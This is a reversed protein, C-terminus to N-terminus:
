APQEARAAENAGVLRLKRQANRVEDVIQEADKVSRMGLGCAPTLLMGALVAEFPISRPTTARLSAEVSEVLEELKYASALDTPVIGLSLTSGEALFKLWADSEELVADLSLRADLSVIDLGLELVQRWDTNSCCHLGVLAGQQQLAKVMMKLEQVVLVHRLNRKDLAYLGPEDLYFIPTAGARRVAKVLALSKALLLRFIQQDLEPNDCAAGGTSTKAVWRVTAPGALQVKAFPLRRHEIEWLFPRFSRCAAAGPEFASLEGSSLAGEIELTTRDRKSHWADLDITCVGEKDFSVGPLGDLAAPIMLENADSSPLQPLFPVDFQLAAQLALEQQTHPLSGIATTACPPLLKL